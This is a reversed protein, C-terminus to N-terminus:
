FFSGCLFSPSSWVLLIWWQTALLHWHQSVTCLAIQSDRESGKAPKSKIYSNQWRDGRKCFTLVLVNSHFGKPTCLIDEEVRFTDDAWPFPPSPIDNQHIKQLLNHFSLVHIFNTKGADCATTYGALGITGPGRLHNREPKSGICRVSNSLHPSYDSSPRFLPLIGHPWPWSLSIVDRLSQLQGAEPIRLDGWLKSRAEQGFSLWTRDSLFPVQIGATLVLPFRWAATWWRKKKKLKLPLFASFSSDDVSESEVYHSHSHRLQSGSNLGLKRSPLCPDLWQLWVQQKWSAWPLFTSDPVLASGLCELMPCPCRVLKALQRDM